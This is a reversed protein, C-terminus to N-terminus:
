RPAIRIRWLNSSPVLRCADDLSPRVQRDCTVWGDEHGVERGTARLRFHHATLGTRRFVGTSATADAALVESRRSRVAEMLVGRVQYGQRRDTVSGPVVSADLVVDVQQGPRAAAARNVSARTMGTAAV